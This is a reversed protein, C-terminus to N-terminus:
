YEELFNIKGEVNKRKFVVYYFRMMYEDCIEDYIFCVIIFIFWIFWVIIFLKRYIVIVFVGKFLNVIFYKMMGFFVFERIIM